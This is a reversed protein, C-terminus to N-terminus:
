NFNSSYISQAISSLDNPGSYGPDIEMDVRIEENTQFNSSPDMYDQVPKTNNPSFIATYPDIDENQDNPNGTQFDTFRNDTIASYEGNGFMFDSNNLSEEVLIENYKHKQILMINRDTISKNYKSLNIGKNVLSIDTFDIFDNPRYLSPKKELKRGENIVEAVFRSCFYKKSFESPIHLYNLILSKFDYKLNDKNDIFYQLRSRMASYEEKTLYMVYVQYITDAAKKFFPDDHNMISFGTGQAASVKKRGFSYIPDLDSTLSIGIHSFEDHTVKKIINALSTGTHMLTIFIPYKHTNDYIAEENIVKNEDAIPLKKNSIIDSINDVGNLRYDIHYKNDPDTNPFEVSVKENHMHAHFNFLANVPCHTFVFGNYNLRHCVKECGFEKYASTPLIDHNGLILWIHKCHIATLFYKTHSYLFEDKKYGIDGCILLTDDEKVTNNIDDIMDNVQQITMIPENERWRYFVHLDAVTYLKGYHSDVTEEITKSNVIDKKIRNYKYKDEPADHDIEELTYRDDNNKSSEDIAESLSKKLDELKDELDENTENPQLEEFLGNTVIPSLNAISMVSETFPDDKFYEDRVDKPAQAYVYQVLSMGPKVTKLSSIYLFKNNGSFKWKKKIDEKLDKLDNYPGHIGAMDEWANEFWYYKNNEKYFLATHTAGCKQEYWPKSDDYYEIAFLRGHKINMKNFIHNEFESQDHCDGKKDDYVDKTSRLKGSSHYRINSKMWNSLDKPNNFTLDISENLNQISEDDTSTIMADFMMNSWNLIKEMRTSLNLEKSDMLVNFIFVDETQGIRYIRDCCQNFDASRWPTGFFFMLNAETLTVGTGLTQSSAVLVDVNSDEKFRLIPTLKDKVNGTVLVSSLGAEGLSEHIHKAVEVIPTFIVTKKINDHIMKNIIPKNDDYLKMFLEKRRLHMIEGLAVGICHQWMNVFRKILFDLRDRDESLPPINPYVYKELYTKKLEADLEHLEYNPINEDIITLYKEIDSKSSKSYKNIIDHFEKQLKHYDKYEEKHIEKARSKVLQKINNVYYKDENKVKLKLTEIHKQPLRLVEDKTKRYMVKGFRTQILNSAAIDNMNFCKNYVQAVEDTFLPDILRMVPCIESPSAKIPTGSMVLVDKSDLMDKLKILAESRASNLNRFNHSEDIILMSNCKKDVKDFIKTISEQNVIIFKVRKSDFEKSVGQMYVEKKWETEDNYKPFYSKIELAWNEKLANPCVIYVKEKRLCLALAVSTLTKGLGQDFSLIYGNLNLKAKLIPYLEIFEKQYLKLEYNDNLLRLRSLDINEPKILDSNSLWTKKYLEKCIDGYYGLRYKTFLEKFLISLELAFFEYTQIYEIRVNSKTIVKNQYKEWDKPNYIIEFIKYVKQDPYLDKIHQMLKTYNIGRIEITHNKPNIEVKHFVSTVKKILDSKSFLMQKWTQKQIDYTSFDTKHSKYANNSIDDVDKNSLFFPFSVETLVGKEEIPNYEYTGECLSEIDSNSIVPTYSYNVMITENLIEADEIDYLEYNENIANINILKYLSSGINKCLNQVAGDGIKNSIKAIGKGISFAYKAIFKYSIKGIIITNIVVIIIGLIMKLVSKINISTKITNYTEHNMPMDTKLQRMLNKNDKFEGKADSIFKVGSIYGITHRCIKLARSLNKEKDEQNMNKYESYFKAVDKELTKDNIRIKDSAETLLEDYDDDIVYSTENKISDMVEDTINKVKLPTKTEVYLCHHYWSGYESDRYATMDKTVEYEYISPKEVNPLVKKVDMIKDTFYIRPTSYFTINDRCKFVPNLAKITSCSSIHYLKSGKKLVMPKLKGYSLFVLKNYKEMDLFKLATVNDKNYLNVVEDFIKKYSNYDNTKRLKELLDLNDNGKMKKMNFKLDRNGYRKSVIGSRKDSKFSGGSGKGPLNYLTLNLVWLTRNMVIYLATKYKKNFKVDSDIKSSEKFKKQILSLHNELINISIKDEKDNDKRYKKFNRIENLFEEYTTEYSVPVGKKLIESIYNILKTSLKIIKLLSEKEKKAVNIEKINTWKRTVDKILEVIRLHLEKLQGTVKEVMISENLSELPIQNMDYEIYDGINENINIIPEEKKIGKDQNFINNLRIESLIKILQMMNKNTLKIYNYQNQSRMYEDKAKELDRNHSFGPHTNKDGTGNGDKIEIVLNFDRLYMDTIWYHPKGEFMYQIKPGPTQLSDPDIDMVKDLWELTFKEYSGTYTFSHKGDSWRYTGSIKRNALMKEQHDPDNMLDYRTKNSKNKLNEEFERSVREKCSPSGCIQKPKGAKENWPTPKGCIRCIGYTRGDHNLSYVYQATSLDNPIEDKHSNEVHKLLEEKNTKTKGCIPCRAM